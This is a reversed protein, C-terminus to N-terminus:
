SGSRFPTGFPGADLGKTMDYPTGEYHDRMLGMVDSVSLPADPKIFLPYDEAGEKGRFYADSFNQSQRLAAIFAGSGAPAPM